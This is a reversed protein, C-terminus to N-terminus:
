NLFCIKDLFKVGSLGTDPEAGVCSLFIMMLFIMLHHGCNLTVGYIGGIELELGKNLAEFNINKLKKSFAVISNSPSEKKRVCKDPQTLLLDM